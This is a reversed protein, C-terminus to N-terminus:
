VWLAKYYGTPLSLPLYVDGYCPLRDVTPCADPCNQFGQGDREFDFFLYDSSRWNSFSPDTQNLNSVRYLYLRLSQDKIFPNTCRAAIHNKAPWLLRITRGRFFTSFSGSFKNRCAIDRVPQYNYGRDEGFLATSPVGRPFSRCRSNQISGSLLSATSDYDVCHVWSHASVYVLVINLLLFISQM